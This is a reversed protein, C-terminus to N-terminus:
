VVFFEENAFRVTDGANLKFEEGANLKVSNVFTGNTSNKDEIFVDGNKIIIGAHIRSIQEKNLRYDSENKDRGIILSNNDINIILPDLMGDNLPVLKYEKKALAPSKGFDDSRNSIYDGTYYRNEKAETMQEKFEMMSADADIEDEKEKKLIYILSNIVLSIVSVIFLLLLGKHKNLFLYGLFSFVAAFSNAAILIEHNKSNNLIVAEDKTEAANQNIDRIFIEENKLDNVSNYMLNNNESDSLFAELERIDFNEESIMEYLCHMKITGEASKYDFVQMIYEMLKKIQARIDKDYGPAYIMKVERSKNNWLMYSPMLVLDNPNLLYGELENICDCINKLVNRLMIIDPKTKILYKDFVFMSSVFYRIFINNDMRGIVPKVIGKIDNNELMLLRFNKNSRGIEAWKMEVAIFNNIGESRYYIEM